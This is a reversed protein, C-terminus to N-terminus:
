AADKIISDLGEGIIKESKARGTRDAGLSDGIFLKV